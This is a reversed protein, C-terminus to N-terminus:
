KRVRLLVSGLASAFLWFAAPVPVIAPPFSDSRYVLQLDAISTNVFEAYLGGSAGIVFLDLETGVVWTDISVDFDFIDPNGPIRTGLGLGILEDRLQTHSGEIFNETVAIPTTGPTDYEGVDTGGLWAAAFFDDSLSDPNMPDDATTDIIFDFYMFQGEVLGFDALTYPCRDRASCNDSAVGAIRIYEVAGQSQITLLLFIVTLFSKINM